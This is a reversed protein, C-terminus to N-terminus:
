GLFRASRRYSERVHRSKWRWSFYGKKRFNIQVREGAANINSRSTLQFSTGVRQRILIIITIIIADENHPMRSPYNSLPTESTCVRRTLDSRNSEM